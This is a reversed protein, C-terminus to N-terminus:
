KKSIGFIDVANKLRLFYSKNRKEAKSSWKYRHSPFLEAQDVLGLDVFRKVHLRVTRGPISDSLESIQKNTLWQDSHNRFVCFIRVEQESIENKEM